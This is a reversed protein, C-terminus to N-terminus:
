GDPTDLLHQLRAALEPPLRDLWTADILGVDIMDRVDVRDNRKNATLKMPLLSDLSLVRYSGDDEGALVDPAPELDDSRVMEGAFVVHVSDRPHAGPGDLFVGDGNAQCSVFGVKELAKTASGLDERRLLIEIEQTNRVAARDVRAVWVAVAISGAVAYPVGASELACAARTLREHVANVAEAMRELSFPLYKM